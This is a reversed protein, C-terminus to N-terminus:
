HVSKNWAVFEGGATSYTCIGEQAETMGEIFSEKLGKELSCIIVL